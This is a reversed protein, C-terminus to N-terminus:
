NHKRNRKTTQLERVQVEPRQKSRPLNSISLMKLLLSQTDVNGTNEKLMHLLTHMAKESDKLSSYDQVFSIIKALIAKQMSDEISAFLHQTDAPEEFARELIEKADQLGNSIGLVLPAIETLFFERSKDINPAV